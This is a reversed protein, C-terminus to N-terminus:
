NTIQKNPLCGTRISETFVKTKWGDGGRSEGGSGGRGREAGRGETLLLDGNTWSSIHPLATLEGAPDAASDWAFNIETCKLRLMPM